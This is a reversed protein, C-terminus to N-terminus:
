TSGTKMIKVLLSLSNNKVAERCASIVQTKYKGLRLQGARQIVQNVIKLCSLLEQHNNCRIRYGSIIDHNLSYLEMYSQRMRQMDGMIRADEARVVLSRIINSHDAMDSSLKQRTSQYEQIMNLLEKLRNFEDPFDATSALEEINLFACMDQLIDGALDMDDTRICVEGNSDVKICLPSMNRLCLFRVNLSDTRVNAPVAIEEVLLFNQNMWMVVRNVRDSIRFTVYSHPEPIVESEALLAYVSFRPLPRSIEFVHYQLSNKYGVFVKIYLDVAVDKPPFFSVRISNTVNALAPHVCHSEGDFIGEAFIVVSRIITENTTTILLEIGHKPNHVTGKTVYLASQIQTNAPIVGMQQRDFDGLGSPRSLQAARQNEEYNKLEMLLNQKKQNLERITEQDMDVDMLNGQVEQGASMFGRVEGDVSCCILLQHGDQRYDAQVIGAISQNFTDKFVIEGTTSNRADIKGNSWGTILEKVGDGDLDYAHIAM